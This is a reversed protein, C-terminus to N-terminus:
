RTSERLLLWIGVILGVGGIAIAYPLRMNESWVHVCKGLVSELPVPGFDRSDESVERNDGLVYLTGAPVVYRNGTPSDEPSVVGGEMARVRKVLHNTPSEPDSIVVIDGKGITGVLWYRSTALFRTGHPHEPEMSRGVVSITRFSTTFFVSLVFLVVLTALVAARTGRQTTRERDGEAVSSTGGGQHIWRLLRPRRLLHRHRQSSSLSRDDRASNDRPAHDCEVSIRSDLPRSRVDDLSVDLVLM